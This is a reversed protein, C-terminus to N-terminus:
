TDLNDLSLQQVQDDVKEVEQENHVYIDTRKLLTMNDERTRNCYGYIYGIFKTLDLNRLEPDLSKLNYMLASANSGALNLKYLPFKSYRLQELFYEASEWSNIKAYEIMHHKTLVLISKEDQATNIMDKYDRSAREFAAKLLKQRALWKLDIETHRTM